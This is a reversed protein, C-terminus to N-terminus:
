EPLKPCISEEPAMERSSMESRTMRPGDGNTGIRIGNTGDWARIGDVRNPVMSTGAANTGILNGAIVVDDSYVLSVGISNGSILNGELEDDIGDGNTGITGVNADWTNAGFGIGATSSAAAMGSVDTGLYNGQITFRPAQSLIQYGAFRNVVLGRLTSDSANPHLYIGIPDTDVNTGDLEIIPRNAWGPQTWGDILIPDNIDPLSSSPRISYAGTGADYGPDTTPINFHIEDPTAGNPNANAELIAERLTLIGDGPDVTDATSNVTLVALM